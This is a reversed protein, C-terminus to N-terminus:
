ISPKQANLLSQALEELDSLAWTNAILSQELLHQATGNARKSQLMEKPIHRFLSAMMAFTHEATSITNGNPANIVVVGRKTSAEIDINDVGVGARAVIKLNPM